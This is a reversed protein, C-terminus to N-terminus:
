RSLIYGEGERGVLLAHTNSPKQIQSWPEKGGVDNGAQYCKSFIIIPKCFGYYLQNLNNHYYCNHRTFINVMFAISLDNQFPLNSWFLNRPIINPQNSKEQKCSCCTGTGKEVLQTWLKISGWNSYVVFQMYTITVFQLFIVM